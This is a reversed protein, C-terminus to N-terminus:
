FPISDLESDTADAGVAVSESDEDDDEPLPNITAIAMRKEENPQVQAHVPIDIIDEPEVREGEGLERNIIGEVWQRAKSRPTFSLSSFDVFEEGKFKKPALVEFKWIRMKAPEGTKEDTRKQSTTEEVSKLKMTYVGRTWEIDVFDKDKVEFM